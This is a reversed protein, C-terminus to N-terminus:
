FFHVLLLVLIGLFVCGGTVMAPVAKGKVVGDERVERNRKRLSETTPGDWKKPM